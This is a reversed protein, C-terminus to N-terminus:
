QCSTDVELAYHKIVQLSMAVEAGLFGTLLSDSVQAAYQRLMPGSLPRYSWHWKEERYGTARASTYPQCFGFQHAHQQLWRYVKEHRGGPEFDSNELANLDVDTGWHHRSVGPMSSYELISRARAVPDPMAAARERWKREWIVKQHAFTRTASLVRLAVGDRQAAAAMSAFAEAAERRLYMCPKSAFPAAIRVFDPHEAPDFQGLLEVVPFARRSEPVSAGLTRPKPTAPPAGLECGVLSGYVLASVTWFVRCFM